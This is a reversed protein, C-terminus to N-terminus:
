KNGQRPTPSRRNSEASPQEGPAPPAIELQEHSALLDFKLQRAHARALGDVLASFSCESACRKIPSQM